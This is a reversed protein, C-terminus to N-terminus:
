RRASPGSSTSGASITWCTCLLQPFVRIPEMSMPGPLAPPIETIVLETNPERMGSGAQASATAALLLTFVTSSWIKM